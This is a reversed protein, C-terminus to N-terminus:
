RSCSRGRSHLMRLGESLPVAVTTSGGPTDLLLPHRTNSQQTALSGCVTNAALNSSVLKLHKLRNAAVLQPNPRQRCLQQAMASFTPHAPSCTTAMDCMRNTDIDLSLPPKSPTCSPVTPTLPKQTQHINNGLHQIEPHIRCALRICSHTVGNDTNTSQFACYSQQPLRAAAPTIDLM